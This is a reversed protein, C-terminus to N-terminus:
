KNREKKEPWLLFIAVFLLAFIMSKIQVEM